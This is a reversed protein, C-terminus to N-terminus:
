RLLAADVRAEGDLLVERQQRDQRGSPQGLVLEVRHKRVEGLPSLAGPGRKRAPLLLHEGERPDQPGPRAQEEEVLDGLAERGHDDLREAASERREVRPAERDDEDLLVQAKRRREGIAVVDELVAPHGRDHAALLELRLGVEQLLVQADSAGLYRLLTMMLFEVRVAERAASAPARAAAREAWGFTEPSATLIPTRVSM